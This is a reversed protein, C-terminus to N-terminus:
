SRRIADLDFLTTDGSLSRMIQIAELESQVVHVQGDWNKHWTAQDPTLRTSQAKGRAAHPDKVELLANRGRWGVLLDPVGKISLVQVSCGLSELALIIATENGDRRAARRM